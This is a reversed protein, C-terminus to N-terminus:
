DDLEYEDCILSLTSPLKTPKTEETKRSAAALQMLREDLSIRAQTLNHVITEWRFLVKDSMEIMYLNARAKSPQASGGQAMVDKRSKHLSDSMIARM